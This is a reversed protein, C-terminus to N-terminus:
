DNGLQTFGAIFLAIGLQKIEFSEAVWIQFGLIVSFWLVYNVIIKKM